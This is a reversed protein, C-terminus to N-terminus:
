LFRVGPDDHEGEGYKIYISWQLGQKDSHMHIKKHISCVYEIRDLPLNVNSAIAKSSQLRNGYKDQTNSQLWLYVKRKHYYLVIGKRSLVLVGTVLFTIAAVIIPVLYINLLTSDSQSIATNITDM